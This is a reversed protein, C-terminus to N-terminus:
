FDMRLSGVVTLPEAPLIWARTRAYKFYEKDLINNVNVQATLRYPGLHFRYAAMADWRAYGPLQFSNDTDGEREGAVFVGTGVTLQDTVHYRAWLNGSHRPVNLLRNGTNGANVALCNGDVDSEACAVDKTITADTYAYAGTVSLKETLRGALDVEIGRSRAEGLNVFFQPSSPDPTKLNNKTIQFLAVTASLRGDLWETKVGVEYQKASEPRFNAGTRTRGAVSSGLSEVYNGYLSLWSWPQYLLGIRPSFKEDETFEQSRADSLSTTSFGVRFKAWDYRGGALIHLKDWFTVQDQFYIGYWQEDQPYFANPSSRSSRLLANFDVAGYVPNFIDITSTPEGDLSPFDESLKYYDAGTLVRHRIGFTDFQGTVNAYVTYAQRRTNAFWPSRVLTRNDDQLFLAYTERWFYNAHYRTVGNNFKWDNNFRHSWNFDVLYTNADYRENPENLTRRIPIPAPRNGIAPIGTDDFLQENKYEFSLNFETSSWPRWTLSPALFIREKNVFDRFSESNQYAFNVRYLLSKDTTLPGTLDVVTRYFAYSGFQQQVSYHPESLPRKTVLNLLGGPQIRGYLVSAPGKLIELQELHATEGTQAFLRVGNRYISSDSSFGRITFSEYGDGFTFDRQVGSVTQVADELRIAQRDQMLEKPVVQLSVPTEMLPVDTKTATTAHSVTYTDRSATVLVPNAEM